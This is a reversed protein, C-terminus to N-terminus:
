CKVSGNTDGNQFKGKIIKDAINCAGIMGLITLLIIQYIGESLKDTFVFIATIIILSVIYTILKTSLLQRGFIQLGTNAM